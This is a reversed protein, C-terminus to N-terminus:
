GRSAIKWSGDPQRVLRTPTGGDSLWGRLKGNPSTIDASAVTAVPGRVTVRRVRAHLLAARHAASLHAGLLDVLGICDEGHLIDDLQARAAATTLACFGRGDARGLDALAQRVTSKVRATEASSAGGGCGAALASAALAAVLPLRRSTM